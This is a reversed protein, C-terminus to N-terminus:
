DHDALNLTDLVSLDDIPNGSWYFSTLSLDKVASIDTVANDRISLWTLSSLGSLADINGEISNGSLDLYYLKSLGSLAPLDEKTLRNRRLDLYELNGLASLPQIDEINNGALSCQTLGSLGSLPSIDEIANGELELWTIKPLDSLFSIDLLGTKTLSLQTLSSIGAIEQVDTLHNYDAYFETLPLGSILSCDTFGTGSVDLISLNKLLALSEFSRIPNDALYLATLGNLGILPELETVNCGTITLDQLKDLDSVFSIDSVPNGSLDLHELGTLASLASADEVANGALDLYTLNTLESLSSIDKIGKDRLSLASLEYVDSLLIDGEKKLFEQMAEKLADDGWEMVHDAIDSAEFSTQTSSRPLAPEQKTVAYAMPIIASIGLVAAFLRFSYKKFSKSKYFPIHATKRAFREEAGPGKGAADLAKSLDLAMEEASAYREEPVFRCAKAIVAAMAPGADAPAPLDEGAMRQEMAAVRESYSIIQKDTPLFPARNRNALRYLVLGLSYIDATETYKENKYVEPAMYNYTGKQSLVSATGSLRRAVGFDGLKFGGDDSVFINEPKVDRHLIHVGACASLARCIDIGLRIIDEAPLPQHEAQWFMFPTLLEMRIYVDWGIENDRPVIASAQIRVVNPAEKLGEMLRAEDLCGAAIDRFYVRATMENNGEALFADIESENGPVPIVKIAAFEPAASGDFQAKYVTGYSGEGLEETVHWGPWIESLANNIQEIYM